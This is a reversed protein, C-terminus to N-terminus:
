RRSRPRLLPRDEITVTEAIEVVCFHEAPQDIVCDLRFRLSQDPTYALIGRRGRVTTGKDLDVNLAALRTPSVSQYQNSTPM